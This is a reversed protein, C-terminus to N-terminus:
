RNVPTSMDLTLTVSMDGSEGLSIHQVNSQYM